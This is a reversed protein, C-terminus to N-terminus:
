PATPISAPPRRLRQFPRGLLLGRCRRDRRRGPGRLRHHRSIAQPELASRDGRRSRIPVLPRRPQRFLVDADRRALLRHRELRYLRRRHPGMDPKPRAPLPRRQHRHFGHEDHRVLVPRPPRGQGDNLRTGPNDPDPDGIWDIEAGGQGPTVLAFGRAFGVILRGDECLGISGIIEPMDWCRPDSGDAAASWLAQGLCDIWFLRNRRTDWLPSEGLRAPGQWLCHLSHDRSIPRSSAGGAAQRELAM